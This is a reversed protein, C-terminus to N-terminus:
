LSPTLLRILTKLDELSQPYVPLSKWEKRWLVFHSVSIWWNFVEVQFTRHELIYVDDWQKFGLEELEEKTPTFM